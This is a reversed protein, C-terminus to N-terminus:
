ARAVFRFRDGRYVSRTWEIPRGTPDCSRRHVLLIPSGVAVGLLAAEEPTTLATEVTDEVAAVELGYCDRLTRYLSGKDALRRALNPLRDALHATEIALPEGGVSRLRRLRHVRTGPAIALREAATEDAPVRTLTLIRSSVQLGQTSLDDTLSTLQQLHVVKPPAVFTGSGQVRRLLGEAALEALAKRLTTRSTGLQEALIREPPLSTSPELTAILERLALKTGYYRPQSQTGELATEAANHM